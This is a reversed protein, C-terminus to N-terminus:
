QQKLKLSKLLFNMCESSKVKIQSMTNWGLLPMNKEESIDKFFISKDIIYTSILTTVAITHFIDNEFSPKQRFYSERLSLISEFASNKLLMHVAHKNLSLLNKNRLKKFEKHLAFEYIFHEFINMKYNNRSNHAECFFDSLFHNIVGLDTSFRKLSKHKTNILNDILILVLNISYKFEHRIISLFYDKDPKINGYIFNTKDLKVNLFSEIYSFTEEGIIKHTSDLM